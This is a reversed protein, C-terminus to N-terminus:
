RNTISFLEEILTEKKFGELEMHRFIRDIQISVTFRQKDEPIESTCISLRESDDDYDLEVYTVKSPCGDIFSLIQKPM